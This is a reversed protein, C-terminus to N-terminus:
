KRALLEEVLKELMDVRKILAILREDDAKGYRKLKSYIRLLDLDRQAALADFANRVEQDMM